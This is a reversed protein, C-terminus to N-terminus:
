NDYQGAETESRGQTNRLLRKPPVPTDSTVGDPAITGKNKRVKAAKSSTVSPVTSSSLMEQKLKIGKKKEGLKDRGGSPM